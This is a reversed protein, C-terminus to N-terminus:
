FDGKWMHQSLEDKSRSSSGLVVMIIDALLYGTMCVDFLPIVSVGLKIQQFIM